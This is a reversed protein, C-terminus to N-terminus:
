VRNRKEQEEVAESIAEALYDRLNKGQITALAKALRHLKEPLDISIRQEAPM